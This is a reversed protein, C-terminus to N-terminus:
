RSLLGERRSFMLVTKEQGKMAMSEDQEKLPVSM